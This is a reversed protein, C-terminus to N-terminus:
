GGCIIETVLGEEKLADELEDPSSDSLYSYLVKGTQEDKALVCCEIANWRTQETYVKTNDAVGAKEMKNLLEKLEKYTM